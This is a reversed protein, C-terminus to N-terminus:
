SKVRGEEAGRRLNTKKENEKVQHVHCLGSIIRGKRCAGGATVKSTYCDEVLEREERFALKGV